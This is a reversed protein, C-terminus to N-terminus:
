AGAVNAACFGPDRVAASTKRLRRLSSTPESAPCIAEIGDRHSQTYIPTIVDTM